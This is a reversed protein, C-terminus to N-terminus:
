GGSPASEKALGRTAFMLLGMILASFVLLTYSIVRYLGPDKKVAWYMVLTDPTAEGQIEAREGQPLASVIATVSKKPLGDVGNLELWAERHYLDQFRVTDFCISKLENDNIQNVDIFQSESKEPITIKLEFKGSNRRNGYTAFQIEVCVTNAFDFEPLDTESITIKQKLTFDAIIEGAPRMGIWAPGENIVPKYAYREISSNYLYLLMLLLFTCVFVAQSIPSKTRPSM